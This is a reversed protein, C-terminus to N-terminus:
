GSSVEFPNPIPRVESDASAYPLHTGSVTSSCIDFSKQRYVKSVTLAKFAQQIPSSFSRFFTFLSEIGVPDTFHGSVVNFTRVCSEARYDDSAPCLSSGTSVSRSTSTTDRLRLLLRLDELVITRTCHFMFRLGLSEWLYLSVYHLWWGRSYSRTELLDHLWITDIMLSRLPM